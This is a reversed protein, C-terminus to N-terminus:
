PCEVILIAVRCAKLINENENIRAPIFIKVDENKVANFLPAIEAATENKRVSTNWVAETSSSGNINLSSPM